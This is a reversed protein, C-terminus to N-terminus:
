AGERMVMQGRAADLATMRIQVSLPRRERAAWQELEARENPSIALSLTLTRLDNIDEVLPHAM